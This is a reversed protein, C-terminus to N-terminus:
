DLPVDRGFEAYGTLEVYGLGTIAKGARTGAVTAEGEWYIVRTTDRTDLEQNPITPTVTLDLDHRPLSVTWGVPYTVGTEPSTWEDTAVISFDDRELVTLTGDPAVISGDAIGVAGDPGRILYLMLDSGDDLQLAFWDWGGQSFTRFDGWQKDFWAEGTVPVREGDVTLQGSVAMRTRSYYYSATGNGYEIYGDGDHLTAPKTAELDLAFGYGPVSGVLRDRGESGAMAWDDLRLNFGPGPRSVGAAPGIRQDYVFRGRAGDTVAVHGVYGAIAGPQGKFFVQEFGYRTGDPAFLHGTYYWWEILADHPAEDQPLRVRPADQDQAGAAGPVVALAVSLVALALLACPRVADHQSRIM